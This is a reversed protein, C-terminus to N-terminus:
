SAYFGAFAAIFNDLNILQEPDPDILDKVHEHGRIRILQIRLMNM